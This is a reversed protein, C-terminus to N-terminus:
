SQDGQGEGEGKGVPAGRRGREGCAGVRAGQAAVGKRRERAGFSLTRLGGRGAGKYQEEDRKGVRRGGREM